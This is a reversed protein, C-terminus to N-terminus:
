PNLAGLATGGRGGGRVRRSPSLHSTSRARHRVRRAARRPRPTAPSQTPAACRPGRSPSASAATPSAARPSPTRPPTPWALTQPPCSPPPAPQPRPSSPLARWAALPRPRAPDRLKAFWAAPAWPLRKKATRSSHPRAAGAEGAADAARPLLAATTVALLLALAPAARAMPLRSTMRQATSPAYVPVAGTRSWRPPRAPFTPLHPSPRPPAAPPPRM